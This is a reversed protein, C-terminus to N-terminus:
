HAARDGAKAAMVRRELIRPDLLPSVVTSSDFEKATIMEDTDIAYHDYCYTLELVTFERKTAARAAKSNRGTTDFVLNNTRQAKSETYSSTSTSSRPQPKLLARKPIPTPM